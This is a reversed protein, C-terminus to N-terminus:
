DTVIKSRATDVHMTSVKCMKLTERVFLNNMFGNMSAEPAYVSVEEYFEFSIKGNSHSLLTKRTPLLFYLICTGFFDFIFLKQPTLILPQILVAFEIRKYNTLQFCKPVLCSIRSNRHEFITHQM